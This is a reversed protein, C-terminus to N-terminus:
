PEREKERIDKVNSEISIGMALIMNLASLVGERNRSDLFRKADDVSHQIIHSSWMVDTLVESARKGLRRHPTPM